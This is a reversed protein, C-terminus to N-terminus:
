NNTEIEINQVKDKVTPDIEEIKDATVEDNQMSLIEQILNNTSLKKRVVEKSADTIKSPSKVLTYKGLDQYKLYESVENEKLLIEMSKAPITTDTIEKGEADFTRNVLVRKLIKDVVVWQDNNEKDNLKYRVWLDVKDGAHVQGDLSKTDSVNYMMKTYQSMDIANGNEDTLTKLGSVRGKMIPENAYIDSIVEKGQLVDEITYIKKNNKESEIEVKTVCSPSVQSKPLEKYTYNQSTFVEGAKIEKTAVAVEVTGEPKNVKKLGLFAGGVIVLTLGASAACIIIKKKTM